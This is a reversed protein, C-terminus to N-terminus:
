RSASRERLVLADITEEDREHRHGKGAAHDVLDRRIVSVTEDIRLTVAELSQLRLNGEGVQAELQNFRATIDTFFAQLWARDGPSLGDSSSM